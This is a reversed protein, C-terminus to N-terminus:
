DLLLTVACSAGGMLEMIGTCISVAVFVILLVGTAIHRPKYWAKLPEPFVTTLFISNGLLYNLYYLVITGLGVWSHLTALNSYYPPGQTLNSHLVAYVGM